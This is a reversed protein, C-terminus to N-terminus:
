GTEQWPVGPSPQEGLFLVQVLHAQASSVFKPRGVHFAESKGSGASSVADGLLARAFGVVAILGFCRQLDFRLAKGILNLKWILHTWALERSILGVQRLRAPSQM